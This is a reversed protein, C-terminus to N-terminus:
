FLIFYPNSLFVRNADSIGISHIVILNHPSLHISRNSTLSVSVVMVYTQHQLQVFVQVIPHPGEGVQLWDLMSM